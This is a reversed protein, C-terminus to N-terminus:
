KYKRKKLKMQNIFTFHVLFFTIAVDYVWWSAYSVVYKLKPTLFGFFFVSIESKTIVERIRIRREKKKQVQPIVCFMDPFLHRTNTTVLSTDFRQNWVVGTTYVTGRTARKLIQWITVFFFCIDVSSDQRSGRGWYFLFLVSYAFLSLLQLKSKVNDEFCM